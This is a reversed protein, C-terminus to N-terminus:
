SIGTAFNPTHNIVYPTHSFISPPTGNQESITLSHICPVGEGRPNFRVGLPTGFLVPIGFLPPGHTDSNYM